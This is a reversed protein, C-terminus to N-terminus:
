LLVGHRRNGSQQWFPVAETTSPFKQSVRTWPSTGDNLNHSPQGNDRGVRTKATAPKVETSLWGFSPENPKRLCVLKKGM